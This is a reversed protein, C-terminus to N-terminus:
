TIKGGVDLLVCVDLAAVEMRGTLEEGTLLSRFNGGPLFVEVVRDSHNLLFYVSSGDARYRQTVELVEEVGLLSKVGAEKCLQHALNVLLKENGHTALYYAKGEGFKNMSLAPSGAYYDNAFYGLVSAGELHVVEGWLSCDYSGQMPGERIVVSNIM